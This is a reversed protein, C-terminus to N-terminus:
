IVLISGFITRFTINSCVEYENALERAIVGPAPRGDMLEESKKAKVIFSFDYFCDPCGLVCFSNM